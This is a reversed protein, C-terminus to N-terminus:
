YKIIISSFHDVLISSILNMRNAFEFFVISSFFGISLGHQSSDSICSIQPHEILHALRYNETRDRGVEIGYRHSYFSIPHFIFFPFFSSIIRRLFVCHSKNLAKSTKSVFFDFGFYFATPAISFFSNETTNILCCCSLAPM